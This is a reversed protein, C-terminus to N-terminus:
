HNKATTSCNLKEKLVVIHPLPTVTNNLELTDASVKKIVFEERFNGFRYCDGQPKFRYTASVFSGELHLTDQRVKYTGKVYEQWENQDYCEGGDLNIKSYNKINLYFSDCIFKFHYKEYSVLKDQFPISDEIWFGQLFEKGSNDPPPNFACSSIALSIIFVLFSKQMRSM